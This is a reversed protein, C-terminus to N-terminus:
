PNPRWFRLSEIVYQKELRVTCCKKLAQGGFCQVNLSISDIFYQKESCVTCCKELTQGGLGLANLSM